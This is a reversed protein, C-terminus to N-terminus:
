KGELQARMQAALDLDDENASADSGMGWAHNVESLPVEEEQTDVTTSAPLAALYKATPGEALMKMMEDYPKVVGIKSLDPTKYDPPIPARSPKMRPTVTYRTKLPDRNGIKTLIIDNGAERDTIDMENSIVINFIQEAISSTAAYCQVKPDGVEFPCDSDPREKQWEAVDKATYEPDSMDVISMMYAVKARINRVIEQAKVDGRMGRLQDVLDCIPCEKDDSAFPTKKPCLVPGSGEALQWHQHVERWFQGQFDGEDTWAPLIRIRNEGDKPRWFRMSPGGGRSMRAQLEQQAQKLKEIALSM